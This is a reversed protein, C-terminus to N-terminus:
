NVQFDCESQKRFPCILCHGPCRTDEGTGLGNWRLLGLLSESQFSDTSRACQVQEIGHSHLAVM